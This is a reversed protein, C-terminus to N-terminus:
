KGDGAQDGLSKIYAILQSLQEESVLGQFAPMVPQYGELLKAQADMISERLYDDDAVVTTGDLLTRPRGAVGTLDPGLSTPMENHCAACGFKGFAEFGLEAPSAPATSAM